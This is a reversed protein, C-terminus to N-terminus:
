AKTYLWFLLLQALIIKFIMAAPLIAVYTVNPAESNSLKGIFSVIAPQTQAGALAGTASVWDLKLIKMTGFLMANSLLLTVASGTFLLILGEKQVADLFLAGSKIGVTAFFLVLGFERFTANTVPPLNWIFSGTRGIWGLVLAVILPGGVLGLKFEFEGLPIPIQGVLMGLVIGLSFSLYDTEGLSRPSDGLYVSLAVIKEAPAVIRLQDGRELITEDTPFFDIDGRRIRTIIANWDQELKLENLNKGVLKSNTLLIRRFDVQERAAEPKLVETEAGVKEGARGLMAKTGVLRLVDGVRLLMDSTGTFVEKGRQVRSVKVGFPKVLSQGITKGDLEPNNLLFNKAMPPEQRSGSEHEARATDEIVNVRHLRAILTTFLIPLLVGLPYAVSYGITLLAADPSGALAETAAALSPTNTLAGCFIGVATIPNIHFFFVALGTATAAILLSIFAIATLALGRRKLIRFFGLGSHLGITYVFILLGIQGVLEPIKFTGEGFGGMALGVFLVAAVGISIGKVRLQSLLYGLGITAFLVMLPNQSLFIRFSDAM